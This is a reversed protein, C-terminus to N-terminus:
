RPYSSPAVTCQYDDPPCSISRPAGNLFLNAGAILLASVILVAVFHVGLKEAIWLSAVIWLALILIGVFPSMLLGLMGAVWVAGSWLKRM